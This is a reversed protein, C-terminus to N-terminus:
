DINEWRSVAIPHGALQREAVFYEIAAQCGSLRAEQLFLTKLDPLLVETMREEVLEQLTPAIRPVFHRPIYFDKVGTFQQLLELWQGSEIDNPWDQGLMDDDIIYLHEV